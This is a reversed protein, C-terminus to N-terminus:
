EACYNEDLLTYLDAIRYFITGGTKSYPLKGSKRQKWFWTTGKGLLLKAHKELIYKHNQLYILDIVEKIQQPNEDVSFVGVEKPQKRTTNNIKMDGFTPTHSFSLYGM